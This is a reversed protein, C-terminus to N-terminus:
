GTHKVIKCRHKSVGWLDWRLLYEASYSRHQKGAKKLHLLAPVNCKVSSKENSPRKAM